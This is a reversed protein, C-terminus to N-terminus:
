GDDECGWYQEMQQQFTSKRYTIGIAEKTGRDLWLISDDVCPRECRLPRDLSKTFTMVEWDKEGKIKQYKPESTHADLIHPLSHGAHYDSAISQRDKIEREKKPDTDWFVKSHAAVYRGLLSM